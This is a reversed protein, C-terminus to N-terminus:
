RTAASSASCPSSTLKRCSRFSTRAWTSPMRFSSSLSSRYAVGHRVLMADLDLDETLLVRDPALPGGLVHGLGRPVAPRAHSLDAAVAPRPLIGDLQEREGREVDGVLEEALPVLPGEGVVVGPRTQTHQALEEVRGRRGCVRRSVSGPAPTCGFFGQAT